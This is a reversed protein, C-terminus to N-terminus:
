ARLCAYIAFGLVVFSVCFVASCPHLHLVGRLHVAHYLHAKGSMNTADECEVAVCFVCGALVGCMGWMHSVLLFSAAACTSSM